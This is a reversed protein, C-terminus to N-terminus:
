DERYCGADALYDTIENSLPLGNATMTLATSADRLLRFPCGGEDHCSECIRGLADCTRLGADPGSTGCTECRDYSLERYRTHTM